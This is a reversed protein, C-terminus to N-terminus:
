EVSVGDGGGALVLTLALAVDLYLLYVQKETEEVFSGDAMWDLVGTLRYKALVLGSCSSLGWSGDGGKQMEIRTRHGQRSWEGELPEDPLQPCM